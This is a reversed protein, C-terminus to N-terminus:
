LFLSLIDLCNNYVLPENANTMKLISKINKCIFEVHVTSRHVTIHMGVCIFHGWFDTHKYPVPEYKLLLTNERPM